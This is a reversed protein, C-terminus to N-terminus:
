TLTRGKNIIHSGFRDRIRDMAKETKIKNDMVPDILDPMDADQDNSFKSVGIGILRYKLGSCEPKLLFKGQTYLIEAMQTPSSISVSRSISRFNSTKLKLTVTKASLHKQKLRASLKECLQWLHKKLAKYNAIDGDLTTENSVSKVKQIPIVSRRDDGRSFYYLREGMIGYDRVLKNLDMKQLQGIQTIGGRGMKKNLVKGVGWIKTIPQTSLFRKAEKKGIVSFGNPKNLDSALKALFKNYSLGISATIGIEHEIRKTAKNLVKAPSMGHLKETGSLDLFAEDISLPEVVPTLEDFIKKIDKSVSLYKKINPALIIAEPCLENAKFMPMASYVGYTRAIYCCTSVVGRRGGGIILPKAELEPNDRKEVSAYFADCDIHAISLKHIESHRLLRPSSCNSCRILQTKINLEILCDRCFGPNINELDSVM